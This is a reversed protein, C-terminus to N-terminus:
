LITMANEFAVGYGLQMGSVNPHFSEPKPDGTSYLYVGNMYSTGTDCLGHGSFTSPDVYTVKVPPFQSKADNVADEIIGNLVDAQDNLFQADWLSVSV